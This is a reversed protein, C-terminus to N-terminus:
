GSGTAQPAPASSPPSTPGERTSEVPPRPARRAAPRRGPKPPSPGIVRRRGPRRSSSSASTPKTAAEVLPGVRLTGEGYPLHRVEGKDGVQNDTFQTHLPDIMWAPFE